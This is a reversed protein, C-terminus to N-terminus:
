NLQVCKVNPNPKCGQPARLQLIALLSRPMQKPLEFIVVQSANADDHFSIRLFHKRQRRRVLGVAVAPLVGLHRAVQQSYEYSDIKDYPISLLSGSSAFALATQATTDLRGLAGEKLAAITGGVYLVQGDEVAPAPLAAALFLCIALITKM